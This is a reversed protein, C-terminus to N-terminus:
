PICDRIWLTCSRPTASSETGEVVGSMQLAIVTEMMNSLRDSPSVSQPCCCLRPGTTDLRPSNVDDKQRPHPISRVVDCLWLPSIRRHLWFGWDGIVARPSDLRLTIM